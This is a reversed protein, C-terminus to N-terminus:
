VSVLCVLLLLVALWPALPEFRTPATIKLAPPSLPLAQTPSGGSDPAAPRDMSRVTLRKGSSPVFVQVRPRFRLLESVSANTSIVGKTPALPVEWHEAIAQATGGQSDALSGSSGMPQFQPRFMMRSLMRAPSLYRRLAALSLSEGGLARALRFQAAGMMGDSLSIGMKTDAVLAYSNLGKASSAAVNALGPPIDQWLSSAQCTDLVLLPSEILDGCAGRSQVYMFEALAWGLERGSAFSTDQFKLFDDGGHGNLYAVFRLRADPDCGWRQTRFRLKTGRPGTSRGSLLRLFEPATVWKGLLSPVEMRPDQLLDVGARVVSFLSGSHINSALMVNETDAVAGVTTAGLERAYLRVLAEDVVHRYNLWFRSSDLSVVLAESVSSAEPAAFLGLLLLLALM